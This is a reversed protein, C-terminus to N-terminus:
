GAPTEEDLGGAHGSRASGKASAQRQGPLLNTVMAEFAATDSM